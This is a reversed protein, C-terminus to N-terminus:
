MYDPLLQKELQIKIATKEVLAPDLLDLAAQEATYHNRDHRAYYIENEIWVYGMITCANDVSDCWLQHSIDGSPIVMDGYELSLDQLSYGLEDLISQALLYDVTDVPTSTITQM